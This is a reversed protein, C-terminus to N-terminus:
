YEHAPDLGTDQELLHQTTSGSQAGGDTLCVKLNIVRHANILGQLIDAVHLRNDGIRGGTKFIQHLPQFHCRGVLLKGILNIQDNGLQLALAAIDAFLSQFLKRIKSTALIQASKRFVEIATCDLLGGGFQQSM